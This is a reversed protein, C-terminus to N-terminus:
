KKSGQTQSNFHVYFMLLSLVLAMILLSLAAGFPRNKYFQEQIVTGLMPAKSGGLLCADIYSGFSFVGVLISGSIIGPKTLPLLITRTVQFMSAGLDKAANILTRDMKEISAYLPLIMFPLQNYFLGILIAKENYLLDLPQNIINLSILVSNLIGETRLIMMWSYTRILFSTWFPLMVLMLFFNKNRRRTAIFYAVPYGIILCLLTNIIAIKSSRWLPKLHLYSPEPQHTEPNTIEVSEFIKVYNQLTFNYRIGGFANKKECFSYILVIGLPFLFFVTLWLGAPLLTVWKQLNSPPM